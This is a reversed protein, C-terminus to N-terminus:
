QAAPLHTRRLARGKEKLGGGTGEPGSNGTYWSRGPLGAAGVRFAEDPGTGAGPHGLPRHRPFHSRIGVAGVRRGGSTRGMDRRRSPNGWFIRCGWGWPRTPFPTSFVRELAPAILVINNTLPGIAAIRGSQIVKGLLQELKLMIRRRSGSPKGVIEIYCSNLRSAFAPQPPGWDEWSSTFWDLPRHPVPAGM